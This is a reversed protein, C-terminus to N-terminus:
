DINGLLHPKSLSVSALNMSFTTVESDIWVQARVKVSQCDSQLGRQGPRYFLVTVPYQKGCPDRGLPHIGM